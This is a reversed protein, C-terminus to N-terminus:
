INENIFVRVKEYKNQLLISSRDIKILKYSDLKDNLTLWKNNIYAKNDIIASLKYTKVSKFFEEPKEDLKFKNKIYLKNFVIELVLSNKDIKLNEVKSFSNYDEIFKIVKIQEKLSTEIELKISQGQNEIMKILINHEECFKQINEIISTFSDKMKIDNILTNNPPFEEKKSADDFFLFWLLLFIILPFLFLEIKVRFNLSDFSNEIYELLYMLKLGERKKMM